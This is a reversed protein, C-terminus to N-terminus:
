LGPINRVAPLEVFGNRPAPQKLRSSAVYSGARVPSASFETATGQFGRVLLSVPNLQVPQAVFFLRQKRCWRPCSEPFRPVRCISPRSLQLTTSISAVVGMKMPAADLIRPAGENIGHPGPGIPVLSLPDSGGFVNSIQRSFIHLGPSELRDLHITPV